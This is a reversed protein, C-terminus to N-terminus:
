KFTIPIELANDNKPLESPNDKKLILAGNKGYDPKTFTLTGAFPAYDSTMWDSEQARAVSEAIIKGDWDVLILPFSAEFFWSGRAKGTVILPSSIESNPKPSELVIQADKLVAGKLIGDENQEQVQKQELINQSSFYVLIGIGGILVIAFLAALAIQGKKNLWRAWYM